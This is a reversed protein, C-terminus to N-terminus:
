KASKILKCEMVAPRGTAENVEKLQSGATWMGMKVEQWVYVAEGPRTDVTLASDNETHSVISHQGPEVLWHFYTKAATSGMMRGDLSVPMKIAAGFNENRYVYIAAKDAPVEFQKAAADEPASALPVSACGSALLVTMGLLLILKGKM